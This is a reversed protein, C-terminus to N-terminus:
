CNSMFFSFFSDLQLIEHFRRIARDCYFVCVENNRSQLKQVLKRRTEAYQLSAAGFTLAASGFGLVSELVTM